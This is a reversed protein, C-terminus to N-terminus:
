KIPKRIVVKSNLLQVFKVKYYILRLGWVRELVPELWTIVMNNCAKLRRNWKVVELTWCWQVKAGRLIRTFYAELNM